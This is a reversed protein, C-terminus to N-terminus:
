ARPRREQEDPPQDAVQAARDPQGAQDAPQDGGRQQEPERQQERRGPEAAGLEAREAHRQEVHQDAARHLEQDPEPQRDDAGLRDAPPGEEADHEEQRQHDGRDADAVREPHQGVGGLPRERRDPLPDPEAVEGPHGLGQAARIKMTTPSEQCHIGNM